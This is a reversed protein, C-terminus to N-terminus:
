LIDSITQFNNPNKVYYNYKKYADYAEIVLEDSEYCYDKDNILEFSSEESLENVIGDITFKAEEIDHNSVSCSVRKKRKHLNARKITSTAVM